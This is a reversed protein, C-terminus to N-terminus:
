ATQWQARVFHAPQGWLDVTASIDAIALNFPIATTLYRQAWRGLEPALMATAATALGASFLQSFPDKPLLVASGLACGAGMLLRVSLNTGCRPHVALEWEGQQLRRLAQQAAQQLAGPQVAGYLFFGEPLSLGSLTEDDRQGQRESLVWVTAHELAHVQRLQLIELLGPLYEFQQLLDRDQNPYFEATSYTM